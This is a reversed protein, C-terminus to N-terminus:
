AIQTKGIWCDWKKVTSEKVTKKKVRAIKNNIELLYERDPIIKPKVKALLVETIIVRGNKKNNIKKVLLFKELFIWDKILNEIRM